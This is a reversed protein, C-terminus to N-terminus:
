RKDGKPQDEPLAPLPQGMRFEVIKSGCRPCYQMGNEEPTGDIFVWQKGCPCFWEGDGDEGDPCNWIVGGTNLFVEAAALSLNAVYIRRDISDGWDDEDNVIDSKMLLVFERYRNLEKVLREIIIQASDM